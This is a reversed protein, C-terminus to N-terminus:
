RRMRTTSGQRVKPSAFTELDDKYTRRLRYNLKETGDKLAMRVLGNVGDELRSPNYHEYFAILQAKLKQGEPSYIIDNAKTRKSGTSIVSPTTDSRVSGRDKRGGGELAGRKSTFSVVSGTRPIPDKPVRRRQNQKKKLFYKKRLNAILAPLGHNFAWTLVDEIFADNDKDDTFREPSVFQYFDILHDRIEDASRSNKLELLIFDLEHLEEEDIERGGLNPPPPAGHQEIRPLGIDDEVPTGVTLGEGYKKILNKNLEKVGKRQAFDLIEQIEDKPKFPDHYRYFEKLAEELDDM